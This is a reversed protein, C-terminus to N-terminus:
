KSDGNEKLMQVYLDITDRTTIEALLQQGINQEGLKFAMILANTAFANVNMGSMGLLWSIFQRGAHQQMLAKIVESRVAADRKLSKNRAKVQDADGLDLPKQDDDAM